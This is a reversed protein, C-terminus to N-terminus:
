ALPSHFLRANVKPCPYKLTSCLFGHHIGRNPPPRNLWHGEPYAQRTGIDTFCGHFAHAILRCSHLFSVIHMNWSIFISYMMHRNAASMVTVDYHARYCRLDGAERTNVWGNIWVCTLSFMLASRWQGKHPSNVTSRHIEGWLHGTVRLHKWEIVDDHKPRCHLFSENHDNIM